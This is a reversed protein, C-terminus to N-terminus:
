DPSKKQHKSCPIQRLFQPADQLHAMSVNEKLLLEVQHWVGWSIHPWGAPWGLVVSPVLAEAFTFKQRLEFFFLTQVGKRQVTHSSIGTVWLCAFVHIYIFIKYLPECPGHCLRCSACLKTNCSEQSADLPKMGFPSIKVKLAQLNAVGAPVTFVPSCAMQKMTTSILLTAKCLKATKRLLPWTM